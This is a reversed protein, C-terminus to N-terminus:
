RKMFKYLLSAVGICAVIRIVGIILGVISTILGISSMQDGPELKRAGLALVIGTIGLVIAIITPFGTGFSLIISFVGCILSGFRQINNDM